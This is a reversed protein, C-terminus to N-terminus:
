EEKDDVRGKNLLKIKKGEFDLDLIISNCNECIFIYGEDTHGIAIHGNMCKKCHIYMQVSEIRKKSAKQQEDM